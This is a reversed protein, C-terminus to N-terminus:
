ADLMGVHPGYREQRELMEQMRLFAEARESENGGGYPDTKMVPRAPPPNFPASEGSPADEIQTHQMNDFPHTSTNQVKNSKAKREPFGNLAVHNLWIGLVVGGGVLLGGAMIFLLETM